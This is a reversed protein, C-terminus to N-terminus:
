FVQSFRELDSGINGTLRPFKFLLYGWSRIALHAELEEMVNEEIHKALSFFAAAPSVIVVLWRDVQFFGAFLAVELGLLIDFQGGTSVSGM